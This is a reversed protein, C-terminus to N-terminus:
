GAAPPLDPAQDEPRRPPGRHSRRRRDDRAGRHRPGPLPGRDDARLRVQPGEEVAGASRPVPVDARQDEVLRAVGQQGRCTRRTMRRLFEYACNHVSPEKEDLAAIIDDIAASKRSRGLGIVASAKLRWDKADHLAKKLPEVAAEDETKGLSVLAVTGLAWKSQKRDAIAEEVCKVLSPVAGTVGKVGLAVAAEERVLPDTDALRAIFVKFARPDKATMTAALARMAILRVHADQDDRALLV